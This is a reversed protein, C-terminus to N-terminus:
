DLEDWNVDAGYDGSAAVPDRRARRGSILVILISGLLLEVSRGVCFSGVVALVSRTPSATDRRMGDAETGLSEAAAAVAEFEPPVVVEDNAVRELIERVFQEQTMDSDHDLQLVTELTFYMLRVDRAGHSSASTVSRHANTAGGEGRNGATDNDETDGDDRSASTQWVTSPKDNIDRILAALRTDDFARPARARAAGEKSDSAASTEATGTVMCLACESPDHSGTIKAILWSHAGGVFIGAAFVVVALVCRGFWVLPRRRDTGGWIREKEGDARKVKKKPRKVRKRSRRQPKEVATSELVKPGNKGNGNM